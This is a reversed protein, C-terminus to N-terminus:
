ARRLPSDSMAVGTTGALEPRYEKWTGRRYSKAQYLARDARVLLADPSSGDKESRTFGITGGPVIAMSSFSWPRSLTKLIRRAVDVGVDGVGPSQLLIAFEDGGLRAVFDGSRMSHELRRSAEILLADGAAHGHSDNVEKFRDLDLLMVVLQGDEREVKDLLRRCERNFYARNPLGTLSDHLAQWELSKEYNTRETRDTMLRLTCGSPLVRTRSSFTRGGSLSLQSEGDVKLAALKAAVLEETSVGDPLPEEGVALSARIIDEYSAGSHRLHATLPFMERYRNNCFLVVGSPDYMALGDDMNELAQDLYIQTEELKLQVARAGTIDRNTTVLGIPRGLSDKVPVKLTSLWGAAGNPLLGAQEITAPRDREMVALEELRFQRALEPPYFDTDTKGILEAASRARMLTATAPNAALFRGEQDKINLCDPLNDVMLRYLENTKTLSQQRHQALLIAGLGATAFFNLMLVTPYNTLASSRIEIPLSFITLGTLTAVAAAFVIIHGVNRTKGRSLWAGALGVLSAILILLLGSWITGGLHLRYAATAAAAILLAPWGGYYGALAVVPARLDFYVGPSPQFAMMMSGVAGMAMVLGFAVKAGLDSLRAVVSGLAFWIVLAIATTALNASLPQWM